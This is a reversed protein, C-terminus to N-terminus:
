SEDSSLPNILLWAKQGFSPMKKLVYRTGDNLTLRFVDNERVQAKGRQAYIQKSVGAGYTGPPHTINKTFAYEATHMPQEWLIIKQGPKPPEKRTAWSYAKDGIVVRWDTHLGARDAEHEQHVLHIDYEKYNPKEM